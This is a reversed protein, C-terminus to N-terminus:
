IQGDCRVTRICINRYGPVTRNSYAVKIRCVQRFVVEEEPLIAGRLLLSLYALVAELIRAVEEVSLVVPIKKAARQYGMHRKMELRPCTTQTKPQLGKIRVDELFRQRLAPVYQDTM